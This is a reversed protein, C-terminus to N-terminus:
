WTPLILAKGLMGELTELLPTKRLPGGCQAEASLFAGNSSGGEDM